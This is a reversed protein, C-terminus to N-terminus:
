PYWDSKTGNTWYGLLYGSVQNISESLWTNPVLAPTGTGVSYNLSLQPVANGYQWEIVIPVPDGTLKISASNSVPAQTNLAGILQRKAIFLNSGDTSKLEFTYDGQEPVSLWGTWRAYVYKQNVGNPLPMANIGFNLPGDYTTASPQSPQDGVHPAAPASMQYTHIRAPAHKALVIGGASQGNSDAVATQVDQNNTQLFQSLNILYKEHSAVSDPLRSARPSPRPVLRIPLTKPSAM